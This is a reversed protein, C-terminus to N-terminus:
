LYVSLNYFLSIHATPGLYDYTLDKPSLNLNPFSPALTHPLVWFPLFFRFGKLNVYSNFKGM